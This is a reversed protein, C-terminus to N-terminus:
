VSRLCYAFLGPDGRGREAAIRDFVGILEAFCRAVSASFAAVGVGIYEGQNLDSSLSRGSQHFGGCLVLGDQRDFNQLHKVTEVGLDGLEAGVEFCLSDLEFGCMFFQILDLLSGLQRPPFSEPSFLKQACFEARGPMM